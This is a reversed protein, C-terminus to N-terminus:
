LSMTLARYCQDVTVHNVHWIGLTLTLLVEKGAESATPHRVRNHQSSSGGKGAEATREQVYRRRCSAGAFDIREIIKVFTGEKIFSVACVVEDIGM